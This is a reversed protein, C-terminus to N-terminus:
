VKIKKKRSRRRLGVGMELEKRRVSGKEVEKENDQRLATYNELGM